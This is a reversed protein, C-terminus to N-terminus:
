ERGCLPCGVPPQAEPPPTDVLMTKVETKAPQGDPRLGTYERYVVTWTGDKCDKVDFDGEPIKTVDIGYLAGWGVIAERDWRRPALAM